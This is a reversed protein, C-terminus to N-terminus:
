GNVPNLLAQDTFRHTTDGPAGQMGESCSNKGVQMAAERERRELVEKQKAELLQMPIGSDNISASHLM